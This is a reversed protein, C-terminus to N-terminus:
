FLFVAVALLIALFSPVITSGSGVDTTSSSTSGSSGATSSSTGSTVSFTLTVDRAGFGVFDFHGCVGSEFTQSALVTGDCVGSSYVTVTVVTGNFFFARLSGGFTGFVGANFPTCARDAVILTQTGNSLQCTGNVREFWSEV